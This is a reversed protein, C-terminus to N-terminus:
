PTTAKQQTAPPVQVSTAEMDKVSNVIVASTACFAGLLAVVLSM